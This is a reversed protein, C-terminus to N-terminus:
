FEEFPVLLALVALLWMKELLSLVAFVECFDGRAMM